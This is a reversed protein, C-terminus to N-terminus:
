KVVDFDLIQRQDVVDLDARRDVQWVSCATVLDLAKALCLYAGFM